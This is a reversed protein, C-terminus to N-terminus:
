SQAQSYSECAHGIFADLYGAPSTLDDRVLRLRANLAEVDLRYEELVACTRVRQWSGTRRPRLARGPRFPVLAVAALLARGASGPRLPQTALGPPLTPLAGRASAARAAGLALRPVRSSPAPGGNQRYELVALAADQLYDIPFPALAVLGLDAPEKRSLTWGLVWRLGGVDTARATRTSLATM